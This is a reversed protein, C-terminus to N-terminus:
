GLNFHPVVSAGASPPIAGGSAYSVAGGAALGLLGQVFNNKSQSSLFDQQQQQMNQKAFMEQSAIYPNQATTYSTLLGQSGSIANARPQLAANMRNLNNAFSQDAVSAAAATRTTGASSMGSVNSLASSVLASGQVIEGRRAGEYIRTSTEQFSQMAQQGVTTAAWNPGLTRSLSETLIDKNKQVDRELAPDVPLEGRLAKLQRASSEQAINYQQKELPSMKAVLQEESMKTIGTLNGEPDFAGSFGLSELLMPTFIADRKKAAEADKLAQNTLKTSAETQQKTAEAMQQLLGAQQDQLNSQKKVDFQSKVNGINRAARTLPDESYDAFQGAMPKVFSNFEADTMTTGLAQNYYDRLFVGMEATNMRPAQPTAAAVPPAQPTKSVKAM